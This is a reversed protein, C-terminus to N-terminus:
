TRANIDEERIASWWGTYTRGQPSEYVLEGAVYGERMCQEGRDRAAGHLASSVAPSKTNTFWEYSFGHVGKCTSLKVRPPLVPKKAPM